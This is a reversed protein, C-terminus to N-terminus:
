IHILSLQFSLRAHQRSVSADAIVLGATAIRGIVVDTHELVREEPAGGTCEIRVRLAM